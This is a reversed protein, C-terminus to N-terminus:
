VQKVPKKRGRRGDKPKPKPEPPQPQQPAQWKDGLREDAVPTRYALALAEIRKFYSERENEPLVRWNKVLEEELENLPIKLTTVGMLYGPQVRLAKGLIESEQIGIERTGQEYNAIRSSSLKNDTHESLERQSWGREARATKIRGGARIGFESRQQAGKGMCANHASALM